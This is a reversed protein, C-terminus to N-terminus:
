LLSVVLINKYKLFSLSPPPARASTIAMINNNCYCPRCITLGAGGSMLRPSTLSLPFVIRTVTIQVLNQPTGQRAVGDEVSYFMPIFRHYLASSGLM